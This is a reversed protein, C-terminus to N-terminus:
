NASSDNRSGLRAILLDAADELAQLLQLDTTPDDESSIGSQRLQSRLAKLPALMQSASESIESVFEKLEDVVGAIEAGLASNEIDRNGKSASTSVKVKEIWVEAGKKSLGINRVENALRDSNGRLPGDAATPGYLEVRVAYAEVGSELVEFLRAQCLDLCEDFTKAGSVDVQCLEWRVADFVLEQLHPEKDFFTVLTAGKPGTERIHRGQLNGPFVIPPDDCVVRRNHVHGLAWYDYRKSRLEDLKCPAYPDHGYSGDLCTHLMGINILGERADPYALSLDETVSRTPYSQGHVAVGIDSLVHTEPHGSSLVKTNPPLRLYKTVSSAADHNGYTIVARIGAEHLQGLQGSVFLGTNYDRWEGDYLDGAILVLHVKREIAESVLAQFATRTANRLSDIPAGEYAVLGHMPSDIHLDAAHLIRLEDLALGKKFWWARSRM